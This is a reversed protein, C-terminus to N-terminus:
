GGEKSPFMRQKVGRCAGLGFNLFYAHNTEKERLHRNGGM